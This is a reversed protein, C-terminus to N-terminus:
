TQLENYTKLIKQIIPEMEFRSIENPISKKISNYVKNNQKLLQLQSILESSNKPEFQLGANGAIWPPAGINSTLVPTQCQLSELITRGFPEPWNGPHVFLDASTYFSSLDSNDIRGYYEVNSPSNNSLESYLPGDGVIHFKFGNKLKRAAEILTRVGKIEKLWGVYLINFCGDFLAKKKGKMSFSKDIFNPMVEIIEPDIGNSIYIQKVSPSIAFLKDVQNMLIPDLHTKFMYKPINAIKENVDGVDHKIKSATTCNLYCQSEMMSKNPCFAYNNLRGIIPTKGGKKKFIGGLFNFQPTFIHFIDTNKEKKEMYNIISGCSHLINESDNGIENVLYEHQVPLQNKSVINITAITVNHGRQELQSALVHLSRSAGGRSMHIKETIFKINMSLYWM